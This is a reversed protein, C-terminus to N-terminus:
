RRQKRGETAVRARWGRSLYKWILLARLRSVLVATGKEWTRPPEGAWLAEALEERPVPRHCEAVLYAFAVRGLRGPFGTGDIVRGGAEIRVRATLYIRLSGRTGV